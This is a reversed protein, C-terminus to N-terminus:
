HHTPNAEFGTGKEPYADQRHTLLMGFSASIKWLINLDTERLPSISQPSIESDQM